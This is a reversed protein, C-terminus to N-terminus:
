FDHKVGGLLVKNSFEGNECHIFYSSIIYARLPYPGVVM